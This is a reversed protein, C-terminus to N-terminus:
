GNELIPVCAPWFCALLAPVMFLTCSPSLSLRYFRNHLVYIPFGLLFPSFFHGIQRFLVNEANRVYAGCWVFSLRNPNKERDQETSKRPFCCLFESLRLGRLVWFFEHYLAFIFFKVIFVRKSALYAVGLNSLM